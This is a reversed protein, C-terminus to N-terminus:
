LYFIYLFLFKSNFTVRQLFTQLSVTSLTVSALDVSDFAVTEREFILWFSIFSFLSPVSYIYSPFVRPLRLSVKMLFPALSLSVRTKPMLHMELRPILWHNEWKELGM